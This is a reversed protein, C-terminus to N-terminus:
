GTDHRGIHVTDGKDLLYHRLLRLTVIAQVHTNGEIALFQSRQYHVAMQCQRILTTRQNVKCEAQTSGSISLQVIGEIKVPM